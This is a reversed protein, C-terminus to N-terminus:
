CISLTEQQLWTKVRALADKPALDESIAQEYIGLQRDASNGLKGRARSAVCGLLRAHSVLEVLAARAVTTSPL